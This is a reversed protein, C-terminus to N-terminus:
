NLLSAQEKKVVDGGFRKKLKEVHRILLNRLKMTKIENQCINKPTKQKSLEIFLYM